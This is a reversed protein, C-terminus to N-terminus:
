FTARATLYASRGPQPIEDGADLGGVPLLAERALHEHYERDLLNEVGAYLTLVRTVQFRGRLHFVSFGATEDEPFARDVRDQRDVVRAGIEIWGPCRGAIEARCAVTAELPPIEPLPRHATDNEAHVWAVSIPLKWRSSAVVALTLEGGYLTAEVNEFGRVRDPATDGDVDEVSVTSEYIYNGFDNYFVSLACRVRERRLQGGVVVESKREAELLPNGVLYGGPAPAFAFFRETVSAARSTSGIGAFWRFALSRDWEVQLNGSVLSEDRDADGAAPGYFRQWQEGITRGQLSPDDIGRARSSVRDARLGVRLRVDERPTTTLEAFLGVDAQSVDPWIHDYATDGSAPTRRERLADRDLDLFDTGAELLVRSAVDFRVAARASLTDATSTTEAELKSRNPKGRNSMLHDVTAVGVRASWEHV